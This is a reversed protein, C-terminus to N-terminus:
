RWLVSGMKWYIGRMAVARVPGRSGTMIWAFVRFRRVFSDTIPHFKGIRAFLVGVFELLRTGIINSASGVCYTSLTLFNASEYSTSVPVM